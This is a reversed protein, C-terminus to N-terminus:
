DPDEDEVCPKAGEVAEVVLSNSPGVIVVRELLTESMVALNAAFDADIRGPEVYELNDEAMAELALLDTVAQVENLVLDGNEDVEFAIAGDNIPLPGCSTPKHVVRKHGRGPSLVTQIEVTLTNTGEPVLWEIRNASNGNGQSPDFFIAVGDSAVLSVIEFEAPVTDVVLADPGSYTIEFIYTTPLPLSIGIEEPGEILEKSIAVGVSARGLALLHAFFIIDDNSPNITDVQIITDGDAVFPILDYLEDENFGIQAPRTPFAPNANTDTLGGVTLLSGNQPSASVTDDNHGACSTMRITNVDIHSIQGGSECNSSGNVGGQFGFGIGLGFDLVLDPDSLDIPPSVSINFTDGTLTQGGFLLIATKDVVEAPDDWIVTLICGDITTTSVETVLFSTLGAAAATLKVSVAAPVTTVDKYVTNFGSTNVSLDWPTIAVGDISVDGDLIQRSSYASCAFTARRLTAGLPKLVDISGSPNNTGVGDVSLAIKGTETVVATLGAQAPGAALFFGFALFLGSTAVCLSKLIRNSKRMVKELKMSASVAVTPEVAIIAIKSLITNGYRRKM